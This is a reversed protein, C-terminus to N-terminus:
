LLVLAGNRETGGALGDPLLVLLLLPKPFIKFLTSAGDVVLLLLLLLLLEDVLVVGWLVYVGGGELLM